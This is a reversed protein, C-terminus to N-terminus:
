REKKTTEARLWSRLGAADRDEVWRTLRKGVAAGFKYGHGSCASVIMAKGDAHCYFKEDRTFTYVCTLVDSVRYEDLRALPPAFLDRIIEGEGDAAMRNEDANDNKFKHRGSGFKLGAGRSPPLVYGDTEGGVDLIVPAKHWVELLDSPPELYVVATRYPTLDLNYEPFLRTVWAGATVIVIDASLTRGDALTVSAHDRDVSKVPANTLVTQGVEELYGALGAAISRCHLVGGEPSHMAYNFTGPELFPWREAADAPELIKHDYGGAVMGATYRDAEDGPQRSVALFGRHDYHSEGLDAWLEDWADFAEGILAGYGSDPGYARRIIRHHDGSASLPNPIPGQEILTVAHGRKSLAWATSLGSIGAGVILINM